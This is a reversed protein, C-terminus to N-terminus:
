AEPRAGGGKKDLNVGIIFPSIEIAEMQLNLRADILPNRYSSYFKIEADILMAEARTVRAFRLQNSTSALTDIRMSTPVHISFHFVRM